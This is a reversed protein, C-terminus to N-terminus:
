SLEVLWAIVKWRQKEQAWLLILAPSQEGEFNLQSPSLYYQRRNDAPSAKRKQCLFSEAMPIATISLAKSNVHEAPRVLENVPASGFRVDALDKGASVKDLSRALGLRL